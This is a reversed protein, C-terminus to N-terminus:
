SWVYASTNPTRRLMKLCKQTIRNYQDSTIQNQRLHRKAKQLVVRYDFGSEDPRKQPM